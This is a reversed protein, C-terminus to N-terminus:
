NQPLTVLVRERAATVVDDAVLVMEKHTAWGPLNAARTGSAYLRLVDWGAKRIRMPVRLTTVEGKQLGGTWRVDFTAGGPEVSVAGAPNRTPPSEVASVELGAAPMELDLALGPVKERAELKVLLVGEAALTPLKEFALSLAVPSDPLDDGHVTSSTSNWQRTWTLSQGKTIATRDPGVRVWLDSTTDYFGLPDAEGAGGVTVGRGSVLGKVHYVGTVPLILSAKITAHAGAALDGKWPAPAGLVRAESTLGDLWETPRTSPSLVQLEIAL